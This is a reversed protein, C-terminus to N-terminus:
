VCETGLVSWGTCEKYVFSCKKHKHLVCVGFCMKREELGVSRAAARATLGHLFDCFCCSGSAM